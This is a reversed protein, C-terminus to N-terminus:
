VRAAFFGKDGPLRVVVRRAGEVVHQATVIIGAGVVFGTGHGARPIAVKVRRERLSLEEMGVTGIAFVRVTAEDVKGYQLEALAAGPWAAVLVPAMWAVLRRLHMGWTVTTRCGM